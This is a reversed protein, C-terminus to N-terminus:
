KKKLRVYMAVGIIGLFLGSVQAIYSLFNLAFSSELVQLVMLFPLAWGVIMLAFGILILQVPQLRSM